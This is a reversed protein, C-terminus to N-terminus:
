SLDCSHQVTHGNITVTNKTWDTIVKDKMWDRGLVLDYPLDKIAWLEMMGDFGPTRVRVKRVVGSAKVISQGQKVFGPKEMKGLNGLRRAMELSVYSRSAGGDLLTRAGIGGVLATIKVCAEEEKSKKKSKKKKIKRIKYKTNTKQDNRDNDLVPREKKQEEEMMMLEEMERPSEEAVGPRTLHAAGRKGAM